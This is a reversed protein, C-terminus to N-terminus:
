KGARKGKGKKGKKGKKMPNKAFFAAADIKWGEAGSILPLEITKAKKGVGMAIAVQAKDDAVKEEGCVGRELLFKLHEKAGEASLDNALTALKDFDGAKAAVVADECIERPSVEPPKPAEAVPPAEEAAPQAAAGEAKAKDADPADAQQGQCALLGMTSLALVGSFIRVKM